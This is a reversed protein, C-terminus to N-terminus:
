WRRLPLTEQKTGSFFVSRPQYIISNTLPFFPPVLIAVLNSLKNWLRRHGIIARILSRISRNSFKVSGSTHTLTCASTCTRTVQQGLKTRLRLGFFPLCVAKSRESGMLIWEMMMACLLTRRATAAPRQALLESKALALIAEPVVPGNLLLEITTSPVDGPWLRGPFHENMLPMAGM